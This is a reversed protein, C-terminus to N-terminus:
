LQHIACGSACVSHQGGAGDANGPMDAAVPFAAPTAGEDAESIQAMSASSRMLSALHLGTYAGLADPEGRDGEKDGGIDEQGASDRPAESSGSVGNTDVGRTRGLAALGVTDASASSGALTAAGGCQGPAGEASAAYDRKYSGARRGVGSLVQMDTAIDAGGSTGGSADADAGGLTDSLQSPTRPPEPASNSPALYPVSLSDSYRSGSPPQMDLGKADSVQFRQQSGEVEAASPGDLQPAAPGPAPALVPRARPARLLM